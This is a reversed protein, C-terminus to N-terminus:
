YLCLRQATNDWDTSVSVSLQETGTLLSLSMPATSHHGMTLLSLYQCKHRATETLLSLRQGNHRATGMLLSLRIGQSNM